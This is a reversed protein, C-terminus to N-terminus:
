LENMDERTPISLGLANEIAVDEERTPEILDIWLTDPPLTWGEVDIEVGECAACGSRYIRIM